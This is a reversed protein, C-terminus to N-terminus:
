YSEGQGPQGDDVLLDVRPVQVQQTEARQGPQLLVTGGAEQLHRRLETGDVQCRLEGGVSFGQFHREPAVPALRRAPDDQM